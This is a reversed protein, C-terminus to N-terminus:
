SEGFATIYADTREALYKEIDEQRWGLPSVVSEVARLLEEAYFESDYEDAEDATKSTQQKIVLKAPDVEGSRLQSLARPVRDCVAKPSRTEDLVTM